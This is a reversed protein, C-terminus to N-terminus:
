LLLTEPNSIPQDGLARVLGVINRVLTWLSALGILPMVGAVFLWHSTPGGGFGRTLSVALIIGAAAVLLSLWFTRIIFTFHSEWMTGWGDARKVYSIILGILSLGLLNLVYIIGITIRLRSHIPSDQTVDM